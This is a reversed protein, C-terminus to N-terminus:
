KHEDFKKLIGTRLRSIQSPSKGLVRALETTSTIVSKGNQGYLHDYVEQQESNLNPRLLMIVERERNIANSTPDSEFSSSVIDKRQGQLIRDVRKPTLLGRGKMGQNLHASIEASTPARGLTEGLEDKAQDIRGIQNVQEEPMYAYNQQQTNFRKAKQLRHELHTRLAAGKNPDYTRFADVANIKLNTLFAAQNVNPAKWLNAKSRFVPEFRTMLADMNEPTPDKKWTEWAQQDATKVQSALKDRADLADDLPDSM